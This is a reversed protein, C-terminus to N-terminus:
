RQTPGPGAASQRRGKRKGRGAIGRQPRRVSPRDFRWCLVSVTVVTMDWLRASIVTARAVLLKATSSPCM